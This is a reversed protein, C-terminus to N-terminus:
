FFSRFGTGGFISCLPSNQLGTVSGYDCVAGNEQLGESHRAVESDHAVNPDSRALRPPLAPNIFVFNMPKPIVTLNVQVCDVTAM